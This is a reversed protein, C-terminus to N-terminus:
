LAAGFNQTWVPGGPSDVRGIGIEKFACNLINARHGESNMWADMVAAASQQGKAINEGYTSWRYGAATIRAGPDTGDPSTHDFYDRAVMDASHGSAAKALLSNDSVPACGEKARETNVLGIVEDAASPAASAKPASAPASSPPHPSRTKM